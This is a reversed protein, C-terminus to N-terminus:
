LVPEARLADKLQAEFFKLREAALTLNLTITGESPATGYLTSIIEATRALPVFHSVNLYTTLAHVRPGYQVQGPVAAPFAAQQRVTCFPCIKVEAQYETIHLRTEPLDVVQRALREQVLVNEWAQGCTCHGTVPLVIVEDPQQSLELTTGVHGPQGGSPRDTKVRESQPKWPKDKSPPLSSTTSDAQLRAKLEQNEAALRNCEATM